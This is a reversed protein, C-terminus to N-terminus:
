PCPCPMLRRVSHFTLARPQSVCLMAGSETRPAMEEPDEGQQGHERAAAVLVVTFDQPFDSAESIAPRELGDESRVMERQVGDDVSVGCHLVPVVVPLTTTSM